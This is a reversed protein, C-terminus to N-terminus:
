CIGMPALESSSGPRSRSAAGGAVVVHPLCGDAQISTTVSPVSTPEFAQHQAQRPGPPPIAPPPHRTILQSSLLSLSLLSSLVVFTGAHVPNYLSHAPLQSAVRVSLLPLVSMRDRERERERETQSQAKERQRGRARPVAHSLASDLVSPRLSPLFPPLPPPSTSSSFMRSAAM